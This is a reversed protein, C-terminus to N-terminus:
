VEEGGTGYRLCDLADSKLLQWGFNRATGMRRAHGYKTARAVGTGRSIAFRNADLPRFTLTAAM